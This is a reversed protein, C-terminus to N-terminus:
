KKNKNKVQKFFTIESKVKLKKKKSNNCSFNNGHYSTNASINYYTENAAGTNCQLKEGLARPTHHKCMKCSGIILLYLPSQATLWRLPKLWDSCCLHPLLHFLPIPSPPLSTNSFSTSLYPLLHFLPIPSPWLSLYPLLCLSLYPLLGFLSTHSFALSLHPLFDFLPTPSPTLSTHSFTLSTQFFTLSLYPLFDFLPIPFLWLSTHSFTLSLYPSITLSLYPFLDFLPIPSPQPSAAMSQGCALAYCCLSHTHCVRVLVKFYPVACMWHCHTIIAATLHALDTWNFIQVPPSDPWQANWWDVCHLTNTLCFAQSFTVLRPKSSLM